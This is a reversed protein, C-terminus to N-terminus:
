GGLRGVLVALGSSEAGGGVQQLTVAVNPYDDVAVGSWLEIAADGGRMHFTGISVGDEADNRVWAQYYTGDAAPPLGSVDLVIRVGSPQDDIEATASAGVALDTGALAVVEGDDSGQALLGIGVGAVLFLAAVAAILRLHRRDGRGPAEPAKPRLAAEATIGAVIRDEMEPDAEAWVSGSSLLTALADFEAEPLDSRDDFEGSM